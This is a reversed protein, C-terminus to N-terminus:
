GIVLPKVRSTRYGSTGKFGGISATQSLRSIIGIM